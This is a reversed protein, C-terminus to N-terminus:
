IFHSQLRKYLNNNMQLQQMSKIISNYEKHRERERHTNHQKVDGMRLNRCFLVDHSREEASAAEESRWCAPSLDKMAFKLRLKRVLETFEGTHRSSLLM